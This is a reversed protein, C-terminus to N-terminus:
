PDEHCTVTVDGTLSELIGYPGFNGTASSVIHLPGTATTLDAINAEANPPTYAVTRAFPTGNIRGHFTVSVGLPPDISIMTCDASVAPASNVFGPATTM